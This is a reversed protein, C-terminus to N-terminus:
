GYNKLPKQQLNNRIAYPIGLHLFIIEVQRISFYYGTKIGLKERLPQLSKNLARREMNYLDCLEKLNYTRVEAKLLTSESEELWNDKSIAPKFTEKM